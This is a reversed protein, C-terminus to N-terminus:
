RREYFLVDYKENIENSIDGLKTVADENFTCLLKLIDKNEKHISELMHKLEEINFQQMSKREEPSM